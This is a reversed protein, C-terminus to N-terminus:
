LGQNELYELEQLADVNVRMDIDTEILDRVDLGLREYDNIKGALDYKQYCLKKYYTKVYNVIRCGLDNADANENKDLIANLYDPVVVINWLNTFFLPHHANGWIHSIVASQVNNWALGGSVRAGSVSEILTRVASNGDRDIVVPIRRGRGCDYFVNQITSVEYAHRYNRFQLALGNELADFYAGQQTSFRSPLKDNNRLINVIEQHRRNVSEPTFFYTQGIMYQTLVNFREEETMAERDGVVLDILGELCNIVRRNNRNAGRRPRRQRGRVIEGDEVILDIGHNEIFDLYKLYGNLAARPRGKGDRQNVGLFEDLGEIQQKKAQFEDKRDYRFLCGIDHNPFRNDLWYELIDIAHAIYAHSVNPKTMRYWTEYRDRNTLIDQLNVLM